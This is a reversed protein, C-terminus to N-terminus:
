SNCFFEIEVPRVKKEVAIDVVDAPRAATPGMLNAEPCNCIDPVGTPAAAGIM